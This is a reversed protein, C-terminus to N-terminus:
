AQKNNRIALPQFALSRGAFDSKSYIPKTDSPLNGLDGNQPYNSKTM